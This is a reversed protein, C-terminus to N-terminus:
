DRNRKFEQYWEDAQDTLSDWSTIFEDKQQEYFDLMADKGKNLLEGTKDTFNEFDEKYTPYYNSVIIDFEKFSNLVDEKVAEPLEEFTVGNIEGNYFLFDTFLIFVEETYHKVDESNNEWMIKVEQIKNNLYQHTENNSDIVEPSVTVEPSIVKPSPSPLPKPSEITNEIPEPTTTPLNMGVSQETKTSCGSMITVASLALAYLKLRKIDISNM